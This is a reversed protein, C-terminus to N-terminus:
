LNVILNLGLVIVCNMFNAYLNLGFILVTQLLPIKKLSNVHFLIHKHVILELM